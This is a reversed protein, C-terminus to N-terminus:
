DYCRYFQLRAVQVYMNYYVSQTVNMHRSSVRYNNKKKKKGNMTWTTNNNDHTRESTITEAHVVHWLM